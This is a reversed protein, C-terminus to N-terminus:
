NNVLPKSCLKTTSREAIFLQSRLMRSVFYSSKKRFQLPDEWFFYLVRLTSKVLKTCDMYIVRLEEMQSMGEINMKPPM